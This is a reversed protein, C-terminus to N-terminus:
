SGVRQVVGDVVIAAGKGVLYDVITGEALAVQVENHLLIPAEDEALAAAGVFDDGESKGYFGATDAAAVLQETSPGEAVATTTAATGTASEDNFSQRTVVELEEPPTFESLVEVFYIMYRDKAFEMEMSWGGRGQRANEDWGPFTDMGVDAAVIKGVQPTVFKGDDDIQVSVGALLCRAMFREYPRKYGDLGDVGAAKVKTARPLGILKAKPVAPFGADRILKIQEETVGGGKTITLFQAEVNGLKGGEIRYDLPELMVTMNIPFTSYGKARIRAIAQDDPPDLVMSQIRFHRRRFTQETEAYLDQPM